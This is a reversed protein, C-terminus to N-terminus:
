PQASPPAVHGSGADTATEKRRETSAKGVGKRVPLREATIRMADEVPIRVVGADRDAWEYRQLPTPEAAPAEPLIPLPYPPEKAPERYPLWFVAYLIAAVTVLAGASWLAGRALPRFGIAQVREFEARESETM